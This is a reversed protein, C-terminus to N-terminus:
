AGDVAAPRRALLERVRQADRDVIQAAALVVDRDGVDRREVRQHDGVVLGGDLAHVRQGAGVAAEIGLVGGGGRVGLLAEAAGELRQGLALALDGHQEVDLVERQALDALDEAHESLRTQWIWEWSLRVSLVCSASSLTSKEATPQPRDRLGGSLNAAPRGILLAIHFDTV